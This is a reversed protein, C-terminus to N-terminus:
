LELVRRTRGIIKDHPYVVEKRHMIVNREPGRGAGFSKEEYDAVISWGDNEYKEVIEDTGVVHIFEYGKAANVAFPDLWVMMSMLEDNTM